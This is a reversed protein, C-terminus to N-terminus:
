NMASNHFILYKEFKKYMCLLENPTYQNYEKMYFNHGALIHGLGFQIKNAKTIFYSRMSHVHFQYRNQKCHEYKKLLDAKKRAVSFRKLILNLFQEPTRNNCFRFDLENNKLRYRIMNSVQRSFFTIRSRGTKTIQAPIRIMINLHTFDLHSIKIQGLESVRMGSSILALLQFKFELRSVNLIKNIMDSTIPIQNEYLTRSFVLNQQIDYWGLRIGCYWLYSRLSVFYCKMSTATIGRKNNWIIWEQLSDYIDDENYKSVNEINIQGFIRFNNITSKFIKQTSLSKLELISSYTILNKVHQKNQKMGNM